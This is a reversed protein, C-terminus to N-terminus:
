LVSAGTRIDTIERTCDCIKFISKKMSINKQQLITFIKKVAIEKKYIM